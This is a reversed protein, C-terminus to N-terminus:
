VTFLTERSKSKLRNESPYGIKWLMGALILPAILWVSLTFRVNFVFMWDLFGLFILFYAYANTSYHSAAM